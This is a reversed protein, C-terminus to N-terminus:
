NVCNKLEEAVFNKYPESIEDETLMKKIAQCDGLMRMLQAMFWYHNAQLKREPIEQLKMLALQLNDRLEMALQAYNLCLIKDEPYKKMLAELLNFFYNNQEMNRFRSIYKELFFRHRGPPSKKEIEDLFAFFFFLRSRNFKQLKFYAEARFYFSDGDSLNNKYLGRFLPAFLGRQVLLDLIEITKDAGSEGRLVAQLEDSKIDSEARFILEMERLFRSNDPERWFGSWRFYERGDSHLFILMPVGNVLFEESLEKNEEFNIEHIIFKQEMFSKIEVVEMQSRLGASFGCNDNYFFLVTRKSAEFKLGDRHFHHSFDFKNASVFTIGTFLFIVGLLVSCIKKNIM